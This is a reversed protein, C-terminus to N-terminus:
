RGMVEDWAQAAAKTLLSIDQAGFQGSGLARGVCGMVFMEKSKTDGNGNGNTRPTPYAPNGLQPKPANRDQVHLQEHNLPSVHNAMRVDKGQFTKVDYTVAVSAGEKLLPAFEPKVSYRVGDSAVISWNTKGENPPYANKISVQAQM